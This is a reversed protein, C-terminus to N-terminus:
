SDIGAVWFCAGCICFVYEVLYVGVEWLLVTLFIGKKLLYQITIRKNRM